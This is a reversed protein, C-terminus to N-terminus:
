VALAARLQEAATGDLAFDAVDLLHAFAETPTGERMGQYMEIRDLPNQAPVMLELYRDMQEPDISQVIADNVALLEDIPTTAALLPMVEVDETSLHALYESVFRSSTLYLRYTATRRRDGGARVVDDGLRRLTDMTAEVIRHEDEIRTALRPAQRAILAGLHSEEHHAHDDLLDLFRHLREAIATMSSRDDVDARGIEVPLALLESRLGKHVDRYLDFEVAELSATVPDALQPLNPSVPLVSM